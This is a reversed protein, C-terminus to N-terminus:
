LMVHRKELERARDKSMKKYQDDTRYMTSGGHVDKIIIFYIMKTNCVATSQEAHMIEDGMVRIFDYINFLENEVTFSRDFSSQNM